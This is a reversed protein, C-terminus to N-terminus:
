SPPGKNVCRQRKGQTRGYRAALKALQERYSTRALDNEVMRSAPWRLGTRSSSSRM